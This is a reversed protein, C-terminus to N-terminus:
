VHAKGIQKDYIQLGNKIMKQYEKSKENNGTAQYGLVLEKYINNELEPDDILYDISMLLIEIAEEHKGLKNLALGKAYYFRVQAPFSELAEEAISLLTNFDSKNILSEIEDNIIEIPNTKTVPDNGSEYGQKNKSTDDIVES